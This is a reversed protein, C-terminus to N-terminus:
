HRNYYYCEQYRLGPTFLREAEDQTANQFVAWRMPLQLSCKVQSPFDTRAVVLTTVSLGQDRIQPRICNGGRRPVTRLEWYQGTLLMGDEDEGRWEM